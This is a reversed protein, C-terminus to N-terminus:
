FCGYVALQIGSVWWGNGTLDHGQDSRMSTVAIRSLHRANCKAAKFVDLRLDHGQYRGHVVEVGTAHEGGAMIGVARGQAFHRNIVFQYLLNIRMQLLFSKIKLSYSVILLV